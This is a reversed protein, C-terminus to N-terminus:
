EEKILEMNLMWLSADQKKNFGLYENGESISINTVDFLGDETKFTYLSYPDGTVSDIVFFDDNFTVRGQFWDDPLGETTKPIMRPVACVLFKKEGWSCKSAITKFSASKIDGNNTIFTALGDRGWMSNLIPGELSPTSMLGTKETVESKPQPISFTSGEVYASPKTTIYVTDGGYSLSWSGFPSAALLSAGNKTLTYINSGSDTTVVYSVKEKKLNSAISTINSNIYQVNQLPLAMENEQVNPVEATIGVIANKEQDIYRMMVRTGKEYFYADYIGPLLTNSIQFPKGSLLPFGYVYGTTRDVFILVTSTARVTKKVQSTSTGLTTTAIIDKLINQTIFAQGTAPKDWVKVLPFSLPDSVETTTTSTDEQGWNLFQFRPPRSETPFPNNTETLSKHMVPKAYVFYWIIVVIAFLLVLGIALLLRRNSNNEM